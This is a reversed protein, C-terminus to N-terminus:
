GFVITKTRTRGYLRILNMISERKAYNQLSHLITFGVSNLRNSYQMKKLYKFYHLTRTHDNKKRFLIAYVIVEVVM